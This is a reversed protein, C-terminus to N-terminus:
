VPRRIDTINKHMLIPIPVLLESAGKSVARCGYQVSLSLSYFSLPVLRVHCCKVADQKALTVLLVLGGYRRHRRQNSCFDPVPVPFFLVSARKRNPETSAPQPNLQADQQQLQQQIQQTDDQAPEDTPIASMRANLVPRLHLQPSVVPLRVAVLGM